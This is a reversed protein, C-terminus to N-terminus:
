DDRETRARRSRPPGLLIESAAVYGILAVATIASTLTTTTVVDFVMLTTVIAQTLGYAVLIWHPADRFRRRDV